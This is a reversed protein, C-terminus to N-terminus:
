CSEIYVEVKNMWKQIDDSSAVLKYYCDSAQKLGFM